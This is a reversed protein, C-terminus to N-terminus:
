KMKTKNMEDIITWYDHFCFFSISYQCPQKDSVRKTASM